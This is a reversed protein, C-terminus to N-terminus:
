LRVTVAPVRVIPKFRSKFFYGHFRITYYDGADAVAEYEDGRRLPCYFPFDADICRVRIPFQQQM